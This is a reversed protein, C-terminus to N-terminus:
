RLILVIGDLKARALGLQEDLRKIVEDRKGCDECRHAPAAPQAPAADNAAAPVETGKDKRKM